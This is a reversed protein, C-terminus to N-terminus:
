RRAKPNWNCLAEVDDRNVYHGDEYRLLNELLVKLSVPLRSVNKFGAKELMDLGYIKYSQDGVKLTAATGFSNLKTKAM